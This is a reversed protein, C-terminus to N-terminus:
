QPCLSFTGAAFAVLHGSKAKPVNCGTLSTIGVPRSAAADRAFRVSQAELAAIAPANPSNPTEHRQRTARSVHVRIRGSATILADALTAPRTSREQPNESSYAVEFVYTRHQASSPNSLFSQKELLNSRPTHLVHATPFNCIGTMETCACCSSREGGLHWPTKASRM